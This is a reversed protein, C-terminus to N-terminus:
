WQDKQCERTTAWERVCGTAAFHVQTAWYNSPWAIAYVMAHHLLDM